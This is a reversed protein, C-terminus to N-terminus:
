ANIKIEQYRNEICEKNLKLGTFIVKGSGRSVSGGLGTIEIMKMGRLVLDLLNEDDHVRVTLKFDFRAGAPVREMNRPHEATGSIRNIVNEYKTDTMLMPNSLSAVWDASLACDWFALRTPGVQKVLEQDSLSDGSTGFLKLLNMFEPQPNKKYDILSYPNGKDNLAGLSWELMSRMKGKLSSGPIYPQNNVPNRIVPNDNGGISIEEQSGGIHLGTVAEITGELLYIKSLKM